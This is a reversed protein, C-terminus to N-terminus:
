SFGPKSDKPPMAGVGSSGEQLDVSGLNLRRGSWWWLWHPSTEAAPSYAAPWSVPLATRLSTVLIVTNITYTEYGSTPTEFHRRDNTHVLSVVRLELRSKLCRAM